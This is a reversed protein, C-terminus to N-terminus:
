LQEMMRCMNGREKGVEGGEEVCLCCSPQLGSSCNGVTRHCWFSRGSYRNGEDALDPLGLLKWKKEQCCQLQDRTHEWREEEGEREEEEEMTKMRRQYVKPEEASSGAVAVLAASFHEMTLMLLVKRGVM